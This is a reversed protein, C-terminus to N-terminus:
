LCMLIYIARDANGEFFTKLSLFTCKVWQPPLSPIKIYRLLRPRASGRCAGRRAGPGPQAGRRVRACRGAGAREAPAAGSGGRGCGGRGAPCPCAPRHPPGAAPLAARGKYRELVDEYAQLYEQEEAYFYAGPSLYGAM